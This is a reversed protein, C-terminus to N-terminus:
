FGFDIDDHYTWQRKWADVPMGEPGTFQDFVRGDRVVVTHHGWSENPGLGYDGLSPAGDPPRFTHVDGGNAKQFAAAWEDCGTNHVLVPTSGAVVYYTHTGAVTLNHAPAYMAPGARLGIVRHQRGDPDAVTDGTLADARQWRRDTANWFPHDETTTITQGDALVLTVLHDDHVYTDTVKRPGQEGTEPDTALVEDGPKVDQIPKTTGDALLVHTDGSFSCAVRAGDLLLDGLRGAARLKSIPFLGLVTWV